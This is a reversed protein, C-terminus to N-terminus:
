ELCWDAMHNRLIKELESNRFNKFSFDSLLNRFYNNICLAISIAMSVLLPIIICGHILIHILWQLSTM